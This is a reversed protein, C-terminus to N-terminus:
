RDLPSPAGLFLFCATLNKDQHVNAEFAVCRQQLEGGLASQTSAGRWTSCKKACLPVTGNAHDEWSCRPSCKPYSNDWYGPAHPTFGVPCKGVPAAPAPATTATAAPSALVLGACVTCAASLMASVPM